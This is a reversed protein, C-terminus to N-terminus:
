YKGIIQELHHELHTLYSIFITGLTNSENESSFCKLSFNDSPIQKILALLHKNYATWFEILQSPDIEQYYGFKNWDNQDYYISPEFEFQTRVFRHHNNTVSDIMHGLIQKKSWKNEHPKFSFEEEPIKKLLKPIVQVLYELREINTQIM